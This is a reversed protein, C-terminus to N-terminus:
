ILLIPVTAMYIFGRGGEELDVNSIKKSWIGMALSCIIARVIVVFPSIGLFILALAALGCFFGHAYFNDEGNFFIDWYTSLAAVNLLIYSTFISLNYFSLRFNYHSLFLFYFLSIISLPWDRMWSRFPKGWGGLRYLVGSLLSIILWIFFNTM